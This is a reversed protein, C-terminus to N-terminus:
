KSVEQGRIVLTACNVGRMVKETVSGFLCRSLGSRSSSTMLILDIENEQAYNIIAKAASGVATEYATNVSPSFRERVSRLYRNAKNTNTEIVRQYLKPDINLTLPVAVSLFIVKTKMAEALMLAPAIAQEALGSGDLPVLIKQFKM